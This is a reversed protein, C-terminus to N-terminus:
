DVADRLVFNQNANSLSCGWQYFAVGNSSEGTNDLCKGSHKSMLKFDDPDATTDNDIVEWIQNDGGHCPWLKVLGGNATSGEFVDLCKGSSAHKISYYNEGDPAPVFKFHQNPNTNADNCTWAQIKAGDSTDGGALDICRGFRTEQVQWATSAGALDLVEAVASDHGPHNSDACTVTNDDSLDIRAMNCNGNNDGDVWFDYYGDDFLGWYWQISDGLMATNGNDFYDFAVSYSCTTGDPSVDGIDVRTVRLGNNTDNQVFYYGHSAPSAWTRTKLDACWATENRGVGNPITCYYETTEGQGIYHLTIPVHAGANTVDSTKVRLCTPIGDSYFGRFSASDQAPLACYLDETSRGIAPGPEDATSSDVADERECTGTTTGTQENDRLVCALGPACSLMHAGSQDRPSCDEGEDLQGVFLADLEPARADLGCNASADAWAGLAQAAAEADYRVVGEAFAASSTISDVAEECSWEAVCEDVSGYPLEADCCGLTGACRVEAALACVDEIAVSDAIEPLRDLPEGGDVVGVDCGTGFSVILSFGFVCRGMRTTSRSPQFTVSSTIMSQALAVSAGSRPEGRPDSFSWELGAWVTSLPLKTPSRRGVTLCRGRGDM